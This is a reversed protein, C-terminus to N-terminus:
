RTKMKRPRAPPSNPPTKQLAFKRQDLDKRLYEIMLCWGTNSSERTTRTVAARWYGFGNTRSAPSTIM